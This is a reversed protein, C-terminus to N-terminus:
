DDACPSNGKSPQRPERYPRPSNWGRPQRPQGDSGPRSFNRPFLTHLTHLTDIRYCSAVGFLVWPITRDPPTGAGFLKPEVLGAAGGIMTLLFVLQLPWTRGSDADMM